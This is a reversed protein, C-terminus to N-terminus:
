KIYGRKIGQLDHVHNQCDSGADPHANKQHIFALLHSGKHRFKEESKLSSVNRHFLHPTNEKNNNFKLTIFISFYATSKKNGKTSQTNRWAEVRINYIVVLPVKWVSIQNHHTGNINKPCEKEHRSKRIHVIRALEVKYSAIMLNKVKTHDNSSDIM